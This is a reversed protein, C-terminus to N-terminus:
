LEDIFEIVREEENYNVLHCRDIRGLPDTTFFVPNTIEENDMSAFPFKEIKYFQFRDNHEKQMVLMDRRGVNSMLVAPRKMPAKTDAYRVLYRLALDKCPQCGRSDIYLFISHSKAISDATLKIGDTGMVSDLDLRRGSNYLNFEDDVFASWLERLQSKCKTSEYMRGTQWCTFMIAGMILILAIRRM